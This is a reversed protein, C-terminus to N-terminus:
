RAAEISAKAVAIERILEDRANRWLGQIPEPYEIRELRDLHEAAEDPDRAITERVRELEVILMGWAAEEAKTEAFTHPYERCVNGFLGIATLRALNSTGRGMSTLSSVSAAHLAEHALWERGGQWLTVMVFIAMASLVVRRFRNQRKRRAKGSELEKVRKLAEECSHDIAIVNRYYRLSEAFEGKEYTERALQTLAEVAKDREHVKLHAIALAERFKRDEQEVALLRPITEIMEDHMGQRMMQDVLRRGTKVLQRRDGRSEHIELMAFLIDTDHPVLELAAEYSRLASDLDGRDKHLKALRHHSVAAQQKRGSRQQLEVILERAHLHDPDREIIVELFHIARHLEGEESAEKALSHLHDCTARKAFGNETLDTLLRMVRFRGWAIENVLDEVTRTGDLRGHIQRADPYDWDGSLDKGRLFIDFDADICASIRDWEKLRNESEEVVLHPDVIIECGLQEPDFYADYRFGEEFTFNAERLGLLLVVEERVSEQVARDFAAEDFNERGRLMSKLTRRGRRKAATRLTDADVAHANLAIAEYDFGKETGPDMATLLGEEFLICAQRERRSVTLVGTLRNTAINGFVEDLSITTLEGAFGM